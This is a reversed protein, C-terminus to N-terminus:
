QHQGWSPALVEHMVSIGSSLFPSCRSDNHRINLRDWLAHTLIYPQLSVRNRQTYDCWTTHFSWLEYLSSTQNASISLIADIPWELSWLPCPCLYHLMDILQVNNQPLTSNPTTPSDVKDGLRNTWYMTGGYRKKIGELNLDKRCTVPFFAKTCCFNRDIKNTPIVILM